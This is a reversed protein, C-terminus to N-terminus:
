RNQLGRVAVFTVTVTQYLKRESHIYQLFVVTLSICEEMSYGDPLAFVQSEREKVRFSTDTHGIKYTRTGCQSLAKVEFACNLETTSMQSGMECTVRM